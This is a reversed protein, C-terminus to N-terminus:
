PAACSQKANEESMEACPDHMDEDDSKLFLPYLEQGDGMDEDEDGWKDNQFTMRRPQQSMVPKMRTLM